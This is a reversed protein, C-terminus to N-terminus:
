VAGTDQSSSNEPNTSFEPYVDQLTRVAAEMATATTCLISCAGIASSTSKAADYLAIALAWLRADRDPHLERLKEVRVAIHRLDHAPHYFTNSDQAEVPARINGLIINVADLQEKTPTDM